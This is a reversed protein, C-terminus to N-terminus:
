GTIEIRTITTQTEEVGLITLLLSTGQKPIIVGKFMAEDSIQELKTEEVSSGDKPLAIRWTNKTVDVMFGCKGQYSQCAKCRSIRVLSGVLEATSLLSAVESSADIAKKKKGLLNQVYENWMRNLKVLVNGHISFPKGVFSKGVKKRKTHSMSGFLRIIENGRKRKSVTKEHCDIDSTSKVVLTRIGGKILTLARQGLKAEIQRAKLGQGGNEVGLLTRSSHYEDSISELFSYLSKEKLNRHISTNNNSNGGGENIYTSLPAYLANKSLSSLNLTSSTQQKSSM